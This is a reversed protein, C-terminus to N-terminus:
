RSECPIEPVDGFIGTKEIKRTTHLREVPIIKFTHARLRVILHVVPFFVAFLADLNQADMNPVATKQADSNKMQRLPLGNQGIYPFIILPSVQSFLFSVAM